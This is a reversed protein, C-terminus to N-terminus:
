IGGLVRTGDQDPDLVVDEGIPDVVEELRHLVPRPRPPTGSRHPPTKVPVAGLRVAKDLEVEQGRPTLMDTLVLVPLSHGVSASLLSHLLQEHLRRM